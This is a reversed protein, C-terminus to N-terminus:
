KSTGKVTPPTEALWGTLVSAARDVDARVVEMVREQATKAAAPLGPLEPKAALADPEADLVRELERVLTPFALTNGKMVLATSKAQKGRGKLLLVIVVLLLLAGGGAGAAVPVPVPLFSKPPDPLVPEEFPAFAVSRLELTDGRADDIAATNRALAIMRDLEEKTRPMPKGSKDKAEDVIIAVHLKKITQEPNVTQVVKHSIEYNTTQSIDGTGVMGSGATPAPAGPLNGRAGAVGGVSSQTDKTPDSGRITKAESRIAASDKDYLDETSSVKRTDVDATAVVKVHGVGVIGELLGRTRNAISTELDAQHDQSTENAGDLPGKPGIVVVAEAKLRDVSAAVLSRIGRVQETTIQQGARPVITVSATPLSDMDKIPSSKGFAIQVNASETQALTMVSRSLEGQLARKFAIQEDFSSRGLNQGEFLDDFTKTSTMAGSVTAIARAQPLDDDEVEVRNEKMRVNIGRAILATYMAQANSPSMGEAVPSWAETRHIVSTIGVFGLVGLVVLVAVMRRGRPQQEWLQKLQKLVTLVSSMPSSPADAM